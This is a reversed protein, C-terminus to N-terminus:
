LREEKYVPEPDTLDFFEKATLVVDKKNLVYKGGKKIYTDSTIKRGDITTVVYIICGDKDQSSLKNRKVQGVSLMKLQARVYLPNERYNLFGTIVFYGFFAVVPALVIFWILGSNM